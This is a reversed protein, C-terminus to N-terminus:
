ISLNKMLHDLPNEEKTEWHTLLNKVIRCITIGIHKAFSVNLFFPLQLSMTVYDSRPM